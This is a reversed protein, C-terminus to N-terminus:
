LDEPHMSLVLVPLQPQMLSLDSLIDLGSRGPMTIDLILVDWRHCQVQTLIQQANEAEGCVVSEL